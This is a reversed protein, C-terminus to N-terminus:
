RGADKNLKRQDSSQMFAQDFDAACVPRSYLYGQGCDCGIERVLREDDVTEIGEAVTSISLLRAIQIIEKMILRVRTQEQSSINLLFERDLKLEDIKLRSLTNLSSFGSGFDDLSIRFGESQLQVIKENLADVNELALGELIELTIFQAPVGYKQILAKLTQVYNPEFFLPKSQNVSIPVPDIGWDIWSRIQRCAQEVMYLDLKVCFGNREFLPIFQNPYIMKGSATTWRVLAESGVLMGSHLDKKPQLFLKFEGDLLAQNMHSEIYNELEEKKHLETDFFWITSTHGGKAQDLAFLVSTLLHDATAQPDSGVPASVVGCYFALQYHIKNIETNHDLDDILANLRARLIDPETDALFLYFADGSERCVFESKQLHRDIIEKIQCLLRNAQQKGFIETIFPFQRINLAAVSGGAIGLVEVLRQQFHTMNEAGTLSDYYALRQLGMNYNQLLRYGRLMLFIVLLLVIGFMGGIILNSDGAASGLGEGTNACFLYWGNMGVPELLFPYSTGEYAFSSFIREQQQMAERVEKESSDSLYPGDYITAPNTQVITNPSRVLFSGDSGILHIYGGGGLVTNGSLIDSFIDIHDTASLVGVIEDGVYFPVSYAFVRQQSITSEFLKSVSPTGALALRVANQAEANLEALTANMLPDRDPTCIIGRLDRDYFAMSLFANSQNAARLRQVMLSWDAEDAPNEIFASLTSLIQFDSQIQKHIRSKYEEAEAIVQDRVAADQIDRLHSFLMGGCVVLIIFVFSVQFVAVRLKKQLKREIM